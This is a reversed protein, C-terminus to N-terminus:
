VTAIAEEKHMAEEKVRMAIDYIMYLNRYMNADSALYITQRNYMLRHKDFDVKVGYKSLWEAIAVAEAKDYTTM